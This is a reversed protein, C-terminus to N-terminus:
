GLPAPHEAKGWAWGANFFTQLLDPDEAILDVTGEHGYKRLLHDGFAVEFTYQRREDETQPNNTSM